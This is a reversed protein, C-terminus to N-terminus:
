AEYKTFKVDYRGFVRPRFSDWPIERFKDLVVVEIKYRNILFDVIVVRHITELEESNVNIYDSLEDTLKQYRKIPNFEDVLLMPDIATNFRFAESDIMIRKVIKGIPRIHYQQDPNQIIEDSSLRKKSQIQEEYENGVAHGLDGYNQISKIKDYSLHRTSFGETNDYNFPKTSTINRYQGSTLDAIDLVLAADIVGAFIPAGLSHRQHGRLFNRNRTFSFDGWRSNLSDNVIINAISVIDSFHYVTNSAKAMEGIYQQYNL